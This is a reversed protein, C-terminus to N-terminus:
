HAPSQPSSEEHEVLPLVIGFITGRNVQTQYRLLGGHKEVIRAAIALGLGTGGEKTSFFPDFLRKEVEPTIGKGTDVVELVAVTANRGGLNALDRRLRLTITGQQGISDAANQVLNILVQKIQEPDICVRAAPAPELALQIQNKELHPGLLSQVERLAPEAWVSILKPDSPRAFQLFDKVIRDLRNIERDIVGRHSNAPGLPDLLKELSFLRAKIATLPNRIEHAVGAALVGLAALKEQRELQAESEVLKVRLPAIMERYIVVALGAAFVLLLFLAGLLLSRLNALSRNSGALFLTLSEHHANALEYGLHLLRESEIEFRAFHALSSGSGPASQSNDEIQRAAALYGDYATNLQLLLEKERPTNLKPVQEDIWRDLERSGKLFQEWTPVEPRLQYRLLTNNLQLISEQFHDALHFSELQVATLKEQLEGIRRWSTHATWVMLTVMLGMALALGALRFRIGANM